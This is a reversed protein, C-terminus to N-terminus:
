SPRPWFASVRNQYARFPEGRRELMRAETPPIGTVYNILYYILSPSILVLL